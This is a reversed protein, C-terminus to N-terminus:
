GQSAEALVPKKDAPLPDADERKRHNQILRFQAPGALLLLLAVASFMVGGGYYEFLLGFLLPSLLKPISMYMGFIANYKGRMNAPAILSVYKQLHTMGIIEAVTFILEILILIYFHRAFGYGVGVVAFLVYSLLIMMQPTRRETKKAVWVMAAVVVVSNITMLIAFLSSANAFHEKLHLPFTTEVQSYLVGVPLTFLTFWYLLRHDRFTVKPIASKQPLSGEASRAPLTEPVKWWVLMAFLLFSAASVSFVTSQNWSYILLGLLPGVAGGVNIATHILAFVEGRKEPPVVDAVQANAAPLFMPMGMGNIVSLVAFEWVQDTFVFGLMCAGQILLAFLMVPKRGYRDAIGGGWFSLLIGALPQLGVILLPLLISGNLKDSLYFVFFPRLMFTTTACLATGFVRIWIVANYQSLSAFFRKM